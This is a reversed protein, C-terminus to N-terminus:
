TIFHHPNEPSILVKHTPTELLVLKARKGTTVYARFIGYTKNWFIGTGAFLGGNGWLRIGLAPNDHEISRSSIVPAFIKRNIRRVIVLENKNLEYAVPAYLYCSVVIISLVLGAWLLAFVFVAGIFILATLLLTSTTVVKIALSTPAVRQKENSNMNTSKMDIPQM